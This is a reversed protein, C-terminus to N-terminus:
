WLAGTLQRIEATFDKVVIPPLISDNLDVELKALDVADGDFAVFYFYLDDEYKNLMYHVRPRKDRVKEQLYDGYRTRLTRHTIGIYMIYGHPPYHNNRHRVIFAYVGKKAPVNKRNAASFRVRSWVLPFSVRSTRWRAPSIYFRRMDTAIEDVRRVFDHVAM